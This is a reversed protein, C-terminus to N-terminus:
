TPDCNEAMVAEASALERERIEDSVERWVGDDGRVIIQKFGTLREKTRQAAQCNELRLRDNMQAISDSTIEGSAATARRAQLEAVPDPVSAVPESEKIPYGFRQQPKTVEEFSVDTPALESFNVVGNEDRWMYYATEDAAYTQSSSFMLLLLVFRM